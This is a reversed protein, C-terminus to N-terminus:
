CGPRETESTPLSVSLSDHGNSTYIVNRSGLWQRYTHESVTEPASPFLHAGTTTWSSQSVVLCQPSPGGTLWSAVPSVSTNAGYIYSGVRTLSHDSAWTQDGYTGAYTVGEYESSLTTSPVSGTDMNVFAVPASAVVTLVILAAAVVALVGHLTGLNHGSVLRTVTIASLVLVPFHLFTQARMATAFYEPTLSATLSFGIVVAPAAFLATLVAGGRYSSLVDLSATAAVAVVGLLAVFGLVLPPTSATGPFVPTFANVLVVAFFTGVISLYTVQRIRSSTHQFWVVGVTLVIAWAIFLGPYAVVRNVYPVTFSLIDSVIRYYFALYAWFGGALCVGGLLSRVSLTRSVHRATLATVVLGVILSTFTHLLPLIGLLLGVIGYWRKEGTRYALHLAFTIIITLLIGVIEEDPVSTRRLFLGEVALLGGTVVAVTHSRISPLRGTEAVARRAVSVGVLCAIAGVLSALPQILRLPDTDLVSSVLALMSTFVLGDARGSLPISGSDITARALAAYGFGDLTSPYPSWYLPAGRIAFALLLIIALIVGLQRRRSRMYDSTM